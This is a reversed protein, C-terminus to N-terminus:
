IFAWFSWAMASERQHRAVKGVGGSFVLVDIGGMAAAYAGVYKKTRSLPILQWSRGLM